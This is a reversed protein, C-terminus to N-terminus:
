ETLHFGRSGKPGANKIRRGAAEKEREKRRKRQGGGVGDGKERGGEEREGEHTGAEKTHRIVNCNSIRRNRNSEAM